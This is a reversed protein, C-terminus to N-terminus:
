NRTKINLFRSFNFHFIVIPPSSSANNVICKVLFFPSLIMKLYSINFETACNVFYKCIHSGNLFVSYQRNYCNCRGRKSWFMRDLNYANFYNNVAIISSIFITHTPIIHQLKNTWSAKDELFEKTLAGVGIGLDLAILTKVLNVAQKLVM